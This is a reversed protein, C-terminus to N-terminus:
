NKSNAVIKEREERNPLPVVVAEEVTLNLQQRYVTELSRSSYEHTYHKAQQHNRASIEERAKDNSLWYDIKRTLDDVSPFEFLSEANVAFDKAASDKSDAVIVPLGHAMAEMVSMGELEIEGAHIFLDSEAYLSLLKEHSVQSINVPCNLKERVLRKLKSENPGAGVFNVEVRDHFKSRSIAEIILHQNKENALRGVSLLKFTEKPEFKAPDPARLFGEPIGNSIVKSPVKLGNAKLMNEAFQSPCIVIDARSYFFHMFVKYIMKNLFDSKLYINRLMNEPQVHFSCVVPVGLEKAVTIAGSGLFFPYQVHLVDCDKLIKRLRAKDPLGLPSKMKDLIQSAVPFSWSKFVEKGPAEEGVGLIVFEYDKDKLKSIFRQTSVVTGNFSYDWADLVIAIKYAM